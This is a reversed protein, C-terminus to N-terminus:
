PYILHDAGASNLVNNLKHLLPGHLASYLILGNGVMKRRKTAIGSDPNLPPPSIM